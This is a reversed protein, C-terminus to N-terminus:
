SVQDFGHQSPLPDLCAVFFLQDDRLGFEFPRDDSGNKLIIWGQKAIDILQDHGKTMVPLQKEVLIRILIEISGPTIETSREPM